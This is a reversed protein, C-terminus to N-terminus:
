KMERAVRFGTYLQEAFSSFEDRRSSQGYYSPQEASGGRMVRVCGEESGDAKNACGAVWEAVNGHMDHLGFNNGAFSGVTVPPSGRPGFSTSFKAKLGDDVEGWHYATTTGARAAYEWEAESLLRYRQGTKKSLWKTYGEAQEWAVVWVPTMAGRDDQKPESPQGTIREWEPDAQAENWEGLTVEFRAVALRYPITRLERIEDSSGNQMMSAGALYSGPEIVVMEPCTPCDRFSPGRRGRIHEPLELTFVQSVLWLAQKCILAGAPDWLRTKLHNLYTEPVGIRPLRNLDTLRAVGDIDISLVSDGGRVLAADVLAGEHGRIVAAEAGNHWIRAAGDNDATVSRGTRDASIDGKDHALSPRSPHAEMLAILSMGYAAVALPVAVVAARVFLWQLRRGTSEYLAAWFVLGTLVLFFVALVYGDTAPSMQLATAGLAAFPAAAAGAVSLRERQILVYFFGGLLFIAALVGIPNELITPGKGLFIVALGISLFVAMVAIAIAHKWSAPKFKIIGASVGVWCTVGTLGAIAGLVAVPNTALVGVKGALAAAILGFNALVLLLFLWVRWNSFLSASSSNTQGAKGSIATGSVDQIVAVLNQWDGASRDGDWGRLPAAHLMGFALPPEAGDISVPVLSNHGRGIRAEEIIRDSRVSSASWLVIIAKADGIERSIRDSFLGGYEMSRDWWVSLGEAELQSAILQATARDERAYSLFVDAM